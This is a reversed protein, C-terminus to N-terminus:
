ALINCIALMKNFPDVRGGACFTPAAGRWWLNRGISHTKTKKKKRNAILTELRLPQDIDVVEDSACGGGEGGGVLALNRPKEAWFKASKFSKTALLGTLVEHSACVGGQGTTLVATEVGDIRSHSSTSECTLTHANRCM